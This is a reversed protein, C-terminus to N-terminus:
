GRTSSREVLRVPATLHEPAATDGSMRAQLLRTSQEVVWGNGPDITSLSPRLHESLALDDFGIVAVDHPIALGADHLAAIAGIADQDTIAFVADFRLGHELAFAVQRHADATEQEALEIVLREDAVLGRAEHANRWGQTRLEAMGTNARAPIGGVIAVSRRGRDLLAGTALEAGEVNALMVHDFRGPMEQEGLLVIPVQTRLRDVDDYSQGVVSLLVGDYMQLRAHSVASLEGERSAGSQEVAVHIGHAGFAAVYRAAIEGFYPHDLRPVILAVTGARGARLRKASLNVEYGLEAIVEIVRSRTQASVRPRGNVVNSVTMISVGAARAVDSM